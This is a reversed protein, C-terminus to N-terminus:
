GAPDGSVPAFARRRRRSEEILTVLEERNGAAILARLRRLEAELEDLAKLVAPGNQTLIPAWMSPDSAAIRSFDRFGGAALRMHEPSVTQLYAFAVLHPVHSTVALMQDHAAASMRTVRAGVGEWWGTVRAVAEVDTEIEPTLVVPHSQFLSAIAAAPGSAESGAIPHAPVFRPPLRGIRARVADLVSEKVSASDFVIGPHGALVEVWAAVQDSPVALLVADSDAPPADAVADIIGLALAEMASQPHVDVGTIHDFLGRARAALAFSGGILGTGVIALRM